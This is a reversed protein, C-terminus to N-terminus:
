QSQGAIMASLIAEGHISVKAYEDEAWRKAQRIAKLKVADPDDSKLADNVKAMFDLLLTEAHM